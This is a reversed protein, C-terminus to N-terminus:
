KKQICAAIIQSDQRGPETGVNYQPLHNSKHKVNGAANSSKSSSNPGKKANKVQQNL